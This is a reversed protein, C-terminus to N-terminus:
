RAALDRKEFQWFAGGLAAAAIILCLVVFVVNLKGDAM